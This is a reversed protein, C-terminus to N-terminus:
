SSKGHKRLERFRFFESIRLGTWKGLLYNIPITLLVMEPYSLFFTRLAEWSVLFYCLTSIVLTEIALQVATWLGKEIQVKVFEEALIAIILIPFISIAIFGTRQTYAGLAFMIFIAFATATLVIAMRPLYLIRLFKLLYRILTAVILIIVFIILGYKIGTVLFALTLITPIYLGFAKIGIVQRFVAIITAIVPIILILFITNIPVGKNVMYNITYSMFNTWNLDKVSRESHVGIIKYETPSTRMNELVQDVDQANIIRNLASPEVLLIMEPQVIDFTQQAIRSVVSPKTTISVIVKHGLDLEAVDESKQVFKTLANLGVSGSTWDVIQNAKQINTRQEALAKALEEVAIYDPQGSTDQIRIVLVGERASTQELENLEEETPTNDAILIILNEYVSVIIEDTDQEEGNDVTLNVIYTGPQEYVHVENVGEIITGDGFDWIYRLDGDLSNVSKSGDFTVKSGVPVNQSEGAVAELRKEPIQEETAEDTTIEEEDTQAWASLSVLGVTLIAAIVILYVLKSYIKM